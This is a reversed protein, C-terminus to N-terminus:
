LLADPSRLFFFEVPELRTPLHGIPAGDRTSLIRLGPAEKSRDAVLLLGASPLARLDWLFYGSTQAWLDVVVGRTPDFRVVSTANDGEFSAVIAYGTTDDVIEWATVFGKAADAGLAVRATATRVDIRVLAANRDLDRAKPGGICGIWLENGRRTFKDVPAKAPLTVFERAVRTRTDIAVVKADNKKTERGGELRRLAVYATDDVIAIASMDPRGDADAFPALEVTGVQKGDRDLIVLSTEYYRTIWLTGDAAFAADRPDASNPAKGPDYVPWSTKFRGSREREVVVGQTAHITFIRARGSPDILMRAQMDTDLGFGTTTVRAHSDPAITELAAADFLASAESIFVGIDRPLPAAAPDAERTEGNLNLGSSCAVAAFACLLRRMALLRNGGPLGVRLDGTM